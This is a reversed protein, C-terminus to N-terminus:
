RSLREGPSAGEGAVLREEGTTFDRRVIAADQVFFRRTRGPATGPSSMWPTGLEHLAPLTEVVRGQDVDVVLTEVSGPAPGLRVLM